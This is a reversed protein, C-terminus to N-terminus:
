MAVSVMSAARPGCGLRQAVDALEIVRWAAGVGPEITLALGEIAALDSWQLLLALGRLDMFAVRRLDIHIRSFGADRLDRLTGHIVDVTALDIEGTIEVAIVDRNPVLQCHLQQTSRPSLVRPSASSLM